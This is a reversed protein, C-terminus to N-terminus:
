FSDQFLILIIIQYILVLEKLEQLLLESSALTLIFAKNKHATMAPLFYLNLDFNWSIIREFLDEVVENQFFKGESSGVGGLIINDFGYIIKVM